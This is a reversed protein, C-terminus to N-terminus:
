ERFREPLQGSTARLGRGRIRGPKTVRMRQMDVLIRAVDLEAMSESHEASEDNLELDGLLMGDEDGEPTQSDGPSDSAEAVPSGEMEQDSMSTDPVAGDAAPSGERAEAEGESRRWANTAALLAGIAPTKSGPRALLYDAPASSAVEPLKSRFLQHPQAAGLSSGLPVAECASMDEPLTSLGSLDLPIGGLDPTEGEKFNCIAYSGRIRRAATDYALAAEEARDFTGLWLRSGKTPDRIEAAFKGWPRQRVGRFKVAGAAKAGNSSGKHSSPPVAGKKTIGDVSKRRLQQSSGAKGRKLRSDSSLPSADNPSEEQPGDGLPSPREHASTPASGALGTSDARHQQSLWSAASSHDVSEARLDLPVIPLELPVSAPPLNAFSPSASRLSSAAAPFSSSSGSVIGPFSSPFGTGGAAAVPFSGIAPSSGLTIPAFGPISSSLQIHTAGTLHPISFPAPTQQAAHPAMTPSNSTSTAFPEAAAPARSSVATPPHAFPVAPSQLPTQTGSAQGSQSLGQASRESDSSPGFGAQQTASSEYSSGAAVSAKNDATAISVQATAQGKGRSAPDAHGHAAAAAAAQFAASLGGKSPSRLSAPKAVHSAGTAPTDSSLDFPQAQLSVSAAEQPGPWDMVAPRTDSGPM